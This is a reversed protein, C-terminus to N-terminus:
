LKLGENLSSPKKIQYVEVNLIGQEGGRHITRVPKNPIIQFGENFFLPKKRELEM